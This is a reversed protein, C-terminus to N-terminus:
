RGASVRKGTNPRNREARAGNYTLERPEDAQAYLRKMEADPPLKMLRERLIWGGHGCDIRVLCIVSGPPWRLM